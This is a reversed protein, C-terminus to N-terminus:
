EAGGGGAAGRRRVMLEEKGGRAVKLTGSKVIFFANNATGTKLLVQKDTLDITALRAVVRDREAQSISAFAPISALVRLIFEQEMLIKLPGLLESFEKRGLVLCTV